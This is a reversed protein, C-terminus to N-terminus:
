QGSRHNPRESRRSALEHLPNPNQLSYAASTRPTAMLFYASQLLDIFFNLRPARTADPRSIPPSVAPLADAASRPPLQQASRSSVVTRLPLRLTDSVMEPQTASCTM